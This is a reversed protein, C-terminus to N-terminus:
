FLSSYFYYCAPTRRVEKGRCKKLSQELNKLCEHKEAFWNLFRQFVKPFSSFVEALLHFGFTLVKRQARASELHHFGTLFNFAPTRVVM